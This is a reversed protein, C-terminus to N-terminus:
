EDYDNIKIGVWHALQKLLYGVISIITLLAFTQLVALLFRSM